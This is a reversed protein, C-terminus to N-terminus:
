ARQRRRAEARDRWPMPLFSVTATMAGFVGGIYSAAKPMGIHAGDEVGQVGAEVGLGDGKLEAVAAGLRQDGVAFEGGGYFLSHSQEVVFGQHDVDGVGGM